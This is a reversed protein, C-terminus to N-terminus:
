GGIPRLLDSASGTDRAPPSEQFAPAITAPMPAITPMASPAPAAPAPTSAPRPPSDPAAHGESRVVLSIGVRSALMPAKYGLYKLLASETAPPPVIPSQGLARLRAALCPHTDGTDTQVEMADNLWQQQTRQDVPGPVREMLRRIALDGAILAEAIKAPGVVRAALKDAEYEDARQIAFTYAFFYPAYWNFFAAFVVAGGHDEYEYAHALQMWTRNVRYIYGGFRSHAGSIHGLEHALVARFQEPSLTALLPIGLTLYNKQWGFIGLRPVQVVSANFEDTLFVKHFRPVKLERRLRDIEQFLPVAEERTMEEGEPDPIRVWLAQLTLAIFALVGLIVPILIKLLGVSGGRMNLIMFKVLFALLGLLGVAFALVLFIFVYGLLALLAVRFRYLGPSRHAERELRMVMLDFRDSTM